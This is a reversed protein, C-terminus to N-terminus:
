MMETSKIFAAIEKVLQKSIPLTPDRYSSLQDKPNDSVKKLVHNMGNIPKLIALKNSKALVKANNMGIQRDTSGHTILIPIKLKAMERVPDYRFWSILYPQVSKRFLPGFTPPVPDIMQGHKLSDIIERAQNFLEQSLAPKLQTLLLKSAPIGAGAISVFANAGMKRCAKLGILSGESYGIVVLNTYKKIKQLEKGWLVADEIYSEFRLDEERNVASESSGVGRKDYRFSAIGKSALSEALLKLSDNKGGTLPNNGDRDTPGSGSIIVAVPGRIDVKSAELTGYLTKGNVRVKLERGAHATATILLMVIMLRIVVNTKM